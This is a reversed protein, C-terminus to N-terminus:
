TMPQYAMRESGFVLAVSGAAGRAYAAAEELQDLPQPFARKEM